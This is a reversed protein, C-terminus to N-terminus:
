EHNPLPTSPWGRSRFSLRGSVPACVDNRRRARTRPITKVAVVRRLFPRHPTCRLSDGAGWRRASDRELSAHSRDRERFHQRFHRLEAARQPVNEGPCVGPAGYGVVDDARQDDKEDEQGRATAEDPLRGGRIVMGAHVLLTGAGRLRRNGRRGAPRSL